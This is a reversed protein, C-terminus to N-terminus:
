LKRVGDEYSIKAGAHKKVIIGTIMLLVGVLFIVIIDLQDLYMYIPDQDRDELPYNLGNVQSRNEIRIYGRTESYNDSFYLTDSYGYDLSGSFLYITFIWSAIFIILMYFSRHANM